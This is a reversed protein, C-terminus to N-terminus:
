QKAFSLQFMQVVIQFARSMCLVSWLEQQAAGVSGSRETRPIFHLAIEDVANSIVTEVDGKKFVDTNGARSLHMGLCSSIGDNRAALSGPKCKTLLMNDAFVMGLDLEPLLM